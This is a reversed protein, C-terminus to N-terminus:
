RDISSGAPRDPADTSQRRTAERRTLALSGLFCVAAVVDIPRWTERDLYVPAIPNFLIAIALFPWTAWQQGSDWAVWAVFLAAITTAWRLFTYYGYPHDGLAVLLL